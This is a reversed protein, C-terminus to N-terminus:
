ARLLRALNGGLVAAQAGKSLGLAEVAQVPTDSGMDFPHDTGLVVHEAGMREILFRLAVADHVLSDCHLNALYASPPRKLVASLAPRVRYGHDLRGLQYPLFGGGHALVIKLEPHQDFVGSLILRAAATTTEMPFGLMNWLHFDQLRSIDGANQPHLFLPVGLRQAAAFVPAVAPDDLDAGNVNTCIAAGRLGLGIVRELETVAATPNQLPLTALPLFRQPYARAMEVLGDNFARAIRVTVGADAWYLFLEPPASVAAADLRAADLARLMTPVDHLRPRLTPGPEAAWAPRSTLCSVNSVAAKAVSADSTWRRNWACLHRWSAVVCRM